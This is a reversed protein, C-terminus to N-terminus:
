SKLDSTELMRIREIHLALYSIERESFLKGLERELKKCVNTAVNFAYPLHTKAYDIMDSNLKENIMVRSIMFRFHYMLRSYAFSGSKITMNCDDEIQKIAEGMIIAINMSQSIKTNNIASHLYLAIYGAEDDSILYGTKKSIIVKGKLAVEFEQEYLFRIDNTFPNEFNIHKELREIAFAIHDALPLLIHNDLKEFKLEAEKIIEHAIELYIPEVNKILDTSLGKETDKDLYYKKVDSQIEDTMAIKKNFGIGKGLFIVECKKEIDFALVANNNLVKKIVVM